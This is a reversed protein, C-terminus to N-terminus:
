LNRTAAMLAQPLPSNLSTDAKLVQKGPLSVIFTNFYNTFPKRGFYRTQQVYQTRLWDCPLIQKKDLWDFASGCKSPWWKEQTKGMVLLLVIIAEGEVRTGSKALATTM